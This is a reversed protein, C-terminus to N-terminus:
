RTVDALNIINVGAKKAYNLTQYAGGTKREVFFVSLNSRDVMSRNRIQFASKFHKNAAEACVEIEDYYNLFSDEDNQFEAKEYPMVWVLVSNDDRVNRKCRRVTSSVLQDFEGDRGM